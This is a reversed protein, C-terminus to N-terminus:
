KYSEHSGPQIFTELNSKAVADLVIAFFDMNGQMTGINEAIDGNLILKDIGVSKLKEIAKAVKLPDKHVDSIIGYRTELGM